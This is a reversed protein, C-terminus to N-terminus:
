QIAWDGALFNPSVGMFGVRAYFQVNENMIGSLGAPLFTVGAPLPPHPEGESFAFADLVNAAADCPGDCLLAAGGRTASFPINGMVLVDAGSGNDGFSLTQGGALAMPPLAYDLDGAQSDDFFIRLGDLQMECGGTNQITISDSIGIRVEVLQLDSLTDPVCCESPEEFCEYGPEIECVDSCGDGVDLNMDDCAETAVILGDGCVSMCVTPEGRCDFGAELACRSSCGDADETNTDDCTELATANIIGDGCAALTCDANCDASEGMGDCEEEDLYVLGDGCIALICQSTCAGNDTNGAGLDCEEPDEIMGNGCFAGGTSGSSSGTSDLATTSGSSDGSPDAGTSTDESPNTMGGPGTSPGTSSTQDTEEPDFCGGAVVIPLLMGLISGFPYKGLM